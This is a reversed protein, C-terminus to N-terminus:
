LFGLVDDGALVPALVPIHEAAHDRGIQIHQGPQAILVNLLQHADYVVRARLPAPDM